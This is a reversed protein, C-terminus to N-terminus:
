AMQRHLARREQLGFCELEKASEPVLKMVTAILVELMAVLIIDRVLIQEPMAEATVGPNPM